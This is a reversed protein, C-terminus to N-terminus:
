LAKRMRLEFAVSNQRDLTASSITVEKVKLSGVLEQKLADVTNFSDTLGKIQITDADVVLGVVQVKWTASTRASIEQLLDLITLGSVEIGTGKAQQEAKMTARLQLLPDVRLQATPLVRKFIARAQGDLVQYQRSLQRYELGQQLVVLSVILGSWLLGKGIEKAYPLGARTRQYAGRLFTLGNKGGGRLALALATNMAQSQWSGQGEHSTSSRIKIGLEAALDLVVVECSFQASLWGVVSAEEGQGVGTLVVRAPSFDLGNEVGYAHITTLVGNVLAQGRAALAQEPLLGVAGAVGQRLHRHLVVSGQYCLSLVGDELDLLAMTEQGGPCLLLQSALAHNRVEVTTLDLHNDFFRALFQELRPRTVAAVLVTSATAEQRAICLDFQLEELPTLLRPELEFAIVQRIKTLNRFPIVLSYFSLDRASLASICPLEDGGVTAVAEKLAAALSEGGCHPVSCFAEIWRRNLRQAVVVVNVALPAIDIGLIQNVDKDTGSSVALAGLRPM